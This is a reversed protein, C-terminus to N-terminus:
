FDGSAVVTVRDSDFKTTSNGTAIVRLSGAVMDSAGDQSVVARSESDNDRAFAGVAYDAASFATAFNLTWDGVANDTLSSVNRSNRIAPTGTGNFNCWMKVAVPAFRINQPTVAVNTASEAEMQAQSAAAMGGAATMYAVVTWNGSADSIAVFGDGAATTINAGTPLILSTANHTLTLAGTFRGIRLRNASTGFSTITTTGSITVGVTAVADLDTTAASAVSTMPGFPLAALVSASVDAAAVSTVVAKGSARIYNVCTWNGSADSMFIGTDGAAATINAGGPLILTTANHTILPTSAFKVIRLLNAGTGLSTITVAGTVGVGVTAVSGLDTTAASALTTFPGFAAAALDAANLTVAGTRGNFSAVGASASAGIAQASWASVGDSVLIAAGNAVGVVFSTGGNITDSGARALTITNTGSAGGVFDAVLLQQGPNFSSAAPLSWTRPATLATNTGVVRDTALITYNANGVPTYADIDLIAAARMAKASAGTMLARGLATTDAIDASSYSVAAKIQAASVAGVLGVVSVVESSDGELRDWTAGNYVIWDGVNWQSLGGINTSGAVSVKYFYGQTGTGNALTPSNTSANWVGRYSLAKLAELADLRADLAAEVSQDIKQGLAENLGFATLIQRASFTM